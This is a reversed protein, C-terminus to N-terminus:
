SGDVCLAAFWFSWLQSASLPWLEGNAESTTPTPQLPYLLLFTILNLRLFKVHLQKLDSM